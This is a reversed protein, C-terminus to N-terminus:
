AATEAQQHARKRLLRLVATEEDSLDDLETEPSSGNRKLADELTGDRYADFVAPHIYCKRCIAPTNGLRHAVFEIARLIRHKAQTETDFGGLEHLALAALITGGWTRFDKATFDRDTIDRLYENVDSSEISQAEGDEDVYQFLDQGPLDALRKVVNALKRNRIGVEHQKGHKGRFSFRLTWGSVNVHRTRLTTLGFSNNDRAYEENGVRILTVELLRVVAALVKERPLGPRSLDKDTRERIAPLARAFDLMRDYKAEDRITRWSAHYRYQKRGRADRGTAQLHGNALPSIWVDEWAPPIALSKIRALGAEDDLPDGRADVYSFGNATRIRTVGPKADTVYRLGAARAMDRAPAEAVPQENTAKTATVV